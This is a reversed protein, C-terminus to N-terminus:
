DGQLTPVDVEVSPRQLDLALMNLLDSATRDLSFGLYGAPSRNVKGCLGDRNQGLMQPVTGRSGAAGM